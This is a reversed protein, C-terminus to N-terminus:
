RTCSQSTLDELRPFLALGQEWQHKRHEWTQTYLELDEQKLQSDRVCYHTFSIRTEGPQCPLNSHTITTSPIPIVSNAPFEVFIEAEWLIIHGGKTHDFDGLAQVACLGSPRNFYDRHKFICVQPGFNFAASTY